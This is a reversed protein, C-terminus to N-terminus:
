ITAEASHPSVPNRGPAGDMEAFRGARRWSSPSAPNPLGTRRLYDGLKFKQKRGLGHSFECFTSFHSAAISSKRTLSRAISSFRRFDGAM